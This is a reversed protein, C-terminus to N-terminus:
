SKRIRGTELFKEFRQAVWDVHGALYEREFRAVYNAVWFMRGARFTDIQGEYREPWPRRREYGDRFARQLPEFADPAVDMMLDQLAMAIDQAPYGWITDEFDFPRLRGRDIKINEHHLDNHIVQLGTPDAYLREFAERVAAMTRELVERTYPTFAEHCAFLVDEEGRAYIHDMKRRTFGQPPAFGTGHEHLQAFLVGMKFLNAKTLRSGLLPGPIWSMVLCRRPGPVGEASAEVIFDGNRAPVPEPAGIETDRHLARLWMAESRLDGATRWGPTCVRLIYSPGERTRVRFLTNTYVGALRVDAVQLDYRDLARLALKRLRRAKGRNTLKEFPRM